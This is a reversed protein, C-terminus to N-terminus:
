SEEMKLLIKGGSVKVPYVPIKIEPALTFEGTRVDFIWDHCPCTLFYGSLNGRHMTCGLHPCQNHLAFIEGKTRLIVVPMGGAKLKVTEGENLADNDLVAVWNDM